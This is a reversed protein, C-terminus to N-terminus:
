DQYLNDNFQPSCRRIECETPFCQLCMETDLCFFIKSRQNERKFKRRASIKSKIADHCYGCDYSTMFDLIATRAFNLCSFSRRDYRTEKHYPILYCKGKEFESVYLLNLTGVPRYMVSQNALSSGTLSIRATSIWTHKSSRLPQCSPCVFWQLHRNPFCFSCM